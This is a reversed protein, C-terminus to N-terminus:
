PRCNPKRGLQLARQQLQMAAPIRRTLDDIRSSHSPHTSLFEPPQGDSTRNMNSWLQTSERPDFGAKAMLDLGLMDAESEQLRSYPLLVGYQAGVGLLGM